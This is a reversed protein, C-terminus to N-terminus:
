FNYYILIINLVINLILKNIITPKYSINNIIIPINVTSRYFPILYATNNPLIYLIITLNPSPCIGGIAEIDLANETTAKVVSVNNTAGYLLKVIVRPHNAAPIGIGTWYEQIDGDTLIGNADITGYVGGGFSLVGVTVNVSQNASPINYVRAIEKATYSGSTFFTSSLDVPRISSPYASCNYLKKDLTDTM